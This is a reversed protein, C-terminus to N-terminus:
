RPAAPQNPRDTGTGMGTGPKDMDGRAGGLKTPDQGQVALVICHTAHRYAENVDGPWEAQKENLKTLANELNGRLQAANVTDPLDLRWSDPMEHIMALNVAPLGHSEKIMVTAVNRGPDRNTDGGAVKDRDPAPAAPDAPTPPTTTDGPVREGAVRAGGEGIEGQMIMAFQNNFVADEDGIDFDQNYKAKWNKRFQDIIGNLKENNDLDSQGLRNRDADVFREVLDDLGDKTVSAEAIQAIVDRIGEADPAAVTGSTGRDIADAAREGTRDIAEGTREAPGKNPDDQALVQPVLLGGIAIAASTILAYRKRM